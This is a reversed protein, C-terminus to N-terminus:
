RVHKGKGKEKKCKGRKQIVDGLQSLITVVSDWLATVTPELPQWGKIQFERPLHLCPM